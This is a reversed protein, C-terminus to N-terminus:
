EIREGLATIDRPQNLTAQHQKVAEIMAALTEPTMAIQMHNMPTQEVPKNLGAIHALERIASSQHSLPPPIIEVHDGDAGRIVTPIGDLASDVKDMGKELLRMAKARLRDETEQKLKVLDPDRKARSLAEQIGSQSYGLKDAIVRQSHGAAQLMVAKKLNIKPKDPPPKSRKRPSPSHAVIEAPTHDHPTNVGCIPCESTGTAEAM